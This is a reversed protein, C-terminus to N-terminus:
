VRLEHYCGQIKLQPSGHRCRNAWPYKWRAKNIHGPWVLGPQDRCKQVDLARSGPSLFFLVRRHLCQTTHRDSKPHRIGHFRFIFLHFASGMAGQTKLTKEPRILAVQVYNGEMMEGTETNLRMAPLSIIKLAFCTKRTQELEAGDEVLELLNDEFM